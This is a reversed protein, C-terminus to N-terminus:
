RRRRRSAPRLGTPKKRIWHIFKRVEENSLLVDRTHYERELEKESFVVHVHSHCPRCVKLIEETMTKRDFRKRASKSRHRTRPILHHRTLLVGSRGCLECKGTGLDTYEEQLSVVRSHGISIIYM